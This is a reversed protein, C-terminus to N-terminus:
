TTGPVFIYMDDTIGNFSTIEEKPVRLVEEVRDVILGIVEKKNESSIDIIIIRTEDSGERDKAELDFAKRLDVVPIVEGRIKIIGAMFQPMQPLPTIKNMLIIERVDMINIGFHENRLGFVVFQDESSKIEKM